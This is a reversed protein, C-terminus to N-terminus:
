PESLLRMTLRRVASAAQRAVPVAEQTSILIAGIDAYKALGALTAPFGTARLLAGAGATANLTFDRAAANTFFSGTGLIAGIDFVAGTGASSRATGNLYSASNILTYRSTGGFWGLTGNSEAICNM